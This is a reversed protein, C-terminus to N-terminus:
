AASARRAAREAVIEARISEWTEGADPDRDYEALRRDLEAKQGPTLAWDVDDADVSTWLAEALDLREAPTLGSFDCNISTLVTRSAVWAQYDIGGEAALSRLAEERLRRREEPALEDGADPVEVKVEVPKVVEPSSGKWELHDGSLVADYTRSV